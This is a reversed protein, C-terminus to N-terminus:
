GTRIRLERVHAGVSGVTIAGLGAALVPALAIWPSRTADWLAGGALPALFAFAYGITFMGASLRAAERGHALAAPLALSVTFVMASGVGIMGGWLVSLGPSVMAGIAAGTVAVGAAGIAVKGASVTLPAVWVLVSALLQTTNLATLTWAVLDSRGRAHLYVPLMANAGFYAVSGTAQLLGLRWTRGELWSPVWRSGTAPPEPEERTLLMVLVATLFVPVAWVALAAEWSGLVPRLVPLTLSAAAAEAVLLGNVYVATARGISQPAWARVLAPVAPQVAAIGLGMVFTAVFLMTTTSVSGRPASAAGAVLLGVILTRRAGVFSVVGSGLTAAVSFLLVPLTTLAAVAANTLGLDEKISPLLPPVALLTVRLSFGALWLLM